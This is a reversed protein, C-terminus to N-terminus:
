DHEPEPTRPESEGESNLPTRFMVDQPISDDEAITELDHM